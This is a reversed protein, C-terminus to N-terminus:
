REAALCVLELKKKFSEVDPKVAHIIERSKHFWYSRFKQLDPTCFIDVTEKYRKQEIIGKKMVQYSGNLVDVTSKPFKNGEQFEGSIVDIAIKVDCDTLLDFPVPNVLGGDLFLKQQYYYPKFIGPISISARIAPVIEGREFVYESKQWYDTASIKLPIKLNEFSVVPLYKKFFDELKKGHILGAKPMRSFTVVKPTDLIGFDTALKYIENSSMGSAYFAGIVAGMSTGAVCSVQLGLEDIAQLYAIHAFGKAAGCGLAIGIKM